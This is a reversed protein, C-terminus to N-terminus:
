RTIPLFPTILVSYERQRRKFCIFLMHIYCYYESQFPSSLWAKRYYRSLFRLVCSWFLLSLFRLVGVGLFAHQQLLIDIKKPVTVAPSIFFAPQFLLVVVESYNLSFFLSGCSESYFLPRKVVNCTLLSAFFPADKSWFLCIM